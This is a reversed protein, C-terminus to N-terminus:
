HAPSSKCSESKEKIDLRCLKVQFDDGGSVIINKKMQVSNLKKSSPYFEQETTYIGQNSVKTKQRDLKHEFTLPWIVVRGDDDASVLQRDNGSVLDFALSRVSKEAARWYDRPECKQEIPDHEDLQSSPNIDQCKELDWITIYGDSDSTALLSPNQPVFALSWIYDNQRQGGSPKKLSLLRPSSKVMLNPLSEPQPRKELLDWLVLRKYQGASVLIQERSNLAAQGQNHREATHLALARIQYNLRDVLSFVNVPDSQLKPPLATFDKRWLRVKGSAHGSFLYRSSQSFALDFVRDSTRDSPDKLEDGEKKGTGVNWLLIRGDEMGAAIRSPERPDYQLTRVPKDVVALLGEARLHKGDCALPPKKDESEYVGQPQLQDSNITWRRMTCDDSGSVVLVGDNSFRVANVFDTHASLEPKPWLICLLALLLVLLALLWLPVVPLVRLELTQTSPDTSGLRQDSLLARAEFQLIKPLGVWPRKIKTELLVETTQGLSLDAYEPLLRFNLKRLDKGQLKANVQEILNSKNKFLLQFSASDSKWDPLWRGHSPITQQQPKATFEIFGVPMVELVGQTRIPPSDRSSAEIIFPYDKSPAQLASPTQCQITIEAQVGPDVTLRRETSSILMSPDIGEFRLVVDTAQQGWNRVWVPIDVPNLPYAQFRKVPLDVSLLAQKTGQAITLRALLKREERLQPSFIRVTLNITGVFAPLPTDFIVIDFETSSGPPKATSVEPSLRYWRSGLSRDAGAALVELQFAAFRDSDNIVTVKFSVPEGGPRFTRSKTSLNANISRNEM